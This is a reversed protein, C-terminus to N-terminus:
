TTSSLRTDHRQAFEAWGPGLSTLPAAHSITRTTQSSPVDELQVELDISSTNSDTPEDNRQNRVTCRGVSGGKYHILITIQSDTEDQDHNPNSEGEEEFKTVLSLTDLPLDQIIKQAFLSLHISLGKIKTRIGLESSPDLFQEQILQHNNNNNNDQPPSIIPLTSTSSHLDDNCTWTSTSSSSVAHELAASLQQGDVVHSSQQTAMAELAKASFLPRGM